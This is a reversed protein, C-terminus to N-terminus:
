KRINITLMYSPTVPYNGVDVGFNTDVGGISPDQGTYKTFTAINNASVGIRLDKIGVRELKSRDFDYGLSINQIRLYSGDEIYWDNAAGNTSLNSASEWIPGGSNDLTTPNWSTLALASKGAGEFSGFLGTYWKSQNFIEAGLSTYLYTSFSWNEYRLNLNVGGTFDPVPSGTFQRDAPTISNDGDSDVYKFRGIGAGPQSAHASVEAANDFYGDTKYTYFASLSQGVANRIPSINRYTSGGFYTIGPALATIENKLTSANVTIEYGITGSRVTGRHIFQMDIGSNSMTAINVSPAAASNGTTAALPIQYLLDKTKKTWVDIIVDLKGGLLTADFGINTTESTEWKANPNGIRSKYYGATAGNNGGSIPYYSASKSQGFLSFQNAPDVNNSNGMEGWGGRIKLEDLWSVGQLFAEDTARWAASFAPFTGYRSNTGFRSSGDKRITGSVYYKEKFNYDLKAFNSYFTVGDYNNSGVVPNSVTNMNIYAKDTSFPNIGSAYLTRGAGTNLAELGVLLKASHSGFSRKYTAINTFTWGINTGSGEGFNDSNQPESDGLYRYGYDTYYYNSVSGGISTRINFNEIPHFDLYMNGFASLSYSKDDAYNQELIRVPNRGNNFGAAKTSAYSGFEDYVPIITAMRYAALVQSEDDASAIGNGAGSARNERYTAQINEGFSLFPTIDYESNMRVSHRRLKANLIVGDQSYSGIGIYFRGKESGGQFGIGIRSTAATNTIADYWNTGTKNAKILFTNIPDSEYLAQVAAVNVQSASLGSGVGSAYLYDPLTAVATGGYQPHSYQVATGNAAANNRQAVATWDALQQPTLQTPAGGVNPDTFGTVFDITVETPKASREGQKTTFVIVGGAARAGYISAAAADKLVTTSAIDNPSLFDINDVPVGDVIYLPNNGGFSGFGRVRIQSTSGPNGNAIVTVGAIRGQFQQEINGTPIALLDKAKVTSIAGTTERKTETGYGTVIIEDLAETSEELSINISSEEGVTFNQTSFGLSSFVLIQNTEVDISYNGDFDTTTGQSTGSIFVTVGPIPNGDSDLVTGSVTTQAYTLVSFIMLLLLTAKFMLKQM